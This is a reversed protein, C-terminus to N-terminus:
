IWKLSPCEIVDVVASVGCTHDVFNLSIDAVSWGNLSVDDDLWLFLRRPKMSIVLQSYGTQKKNAGGCHGCIGM